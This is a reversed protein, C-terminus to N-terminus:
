LPVQLSSFWNHGSCLCVSLFQLYVSCSHSSRRPWSTQTHIYSISLGTYHKDFLNVCLLLSFQPQKSHTDTSSLAAMLIAKQHIRIKTQITTRSFIDLLWKNPEKSGYKYEIYRETRSCCKTWLSLKQFIFGPLCITFLAFLSRLSGIFLRRAFTWTPYGRM